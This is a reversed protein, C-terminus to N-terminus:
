MFIAPYFISPISRSSHVTGFVKANTWVEVHKSAKTRNSKVWVLWDSLKTLFLKM